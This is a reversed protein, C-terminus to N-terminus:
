DSSEDGAFHSKMLLYFETTAFILVVFALLVVGMTLADDSWRTDVDSALWWLFLDAIYLLAPFYM